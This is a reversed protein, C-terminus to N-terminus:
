EAERWYVAGVIERLIDQVEVTAASTGFYLRDRDTGPMRLVIPQHLMGTFSLASPPTPVGSVSVQIPENNVRNFFTTDASRQGTCANFIYVFSNGGGSCPSTNPSFSIAIVRGDRIMLNKILREGEYGTSNPFDFYWGANSGSAPNPRGGSDSDTTTTWNAPNASLVRAQQGSVTSYVEVSQRVLSVGSFATNSFAGTAKNYSGLYESPDTPDSFDWIGYISQVSTTDLRDPDGLFKGTGFVVIYGEKTCHRMVSPKTTISQGGPAQFLPKPTSGSRFASKWNAPNDSSLDIKWLNGTLDGAYVYDVKFDNNADILTPTSMGGGAGTDIKRILTGTSPDVVYLVSHGSSSEYGNGFVVVWPYSASNSAVIYAQSFSYGMDSDTEGLEDTITDGDNDIGDSGARPFEWLVMDAVTDETTSTSVNDANTIDLAYYGKGGKGLGGVLLTKKAGGVRISQAVVTLDVYFSHTYNTNTLNTLHDFVLNPIYAFREVGTSSSFAHLMGDNAGAFVTDGVLVPASHVIDGLKKTRSRLGDVELGRIFEIRDQALSDNASSSILDSGLQQKQTNTLSGYRFPKGDNTGNYTVIRRGTDWDRMQLQDSARWRIDNEERLVEGTVSDIPYAVLDGVWKGAEYQAQFLVSGQSLEEGNVSVSAGSAKRSDINQFVKELSSVLEEPNSASFFLGRGNVASHWLDDINERKDAGPQPWTPRPTSTSLFCPDDEEGDGNADLPTLTGTVGFSVSYTVMHQHRATDCSNPPVFNDLSTSLDTKYYKMAVDALTDSYTDAYPSGEASDQNGVSPTNGNWFGDTMVISFAQQCAGGDQESAWPASGLGGTESDDASFYQGVHKLGLRLPTGGSSNIAYLSNLFTTTQDVSVSGSTAEFKVADANTSSGTSGSHRDVRVSGATGANFTFTGLLKWEGCGLSGGSSQDKYVVTTGGNHTITFKANTDRTDSCNWWAYVDFQKTESFTPTWKAYDGSNSTYFSSDNYENPSGSESWSGSKSFGADKNDIVIADSDVHIPLVTQELSGNISNLGVYIRSLSNVTTSVAAKATLERRRYFSYWNAFNQLDETDTKEGVVSGDESYNKPIIQTPVSTAPIPTLEGGEVINDSDADDFRYYSRVGSSFTTLYVEGSDIAGNGDADYWQYYHANYITITPVVKVFRIADACVRDYDSNRHFALSVSGTSGESFTYQGLLNWTGSWSTDRQNMTTTNSTGDHTITYVVATSRNGNGYWRAFVQYTGTSPITTSWRATYNDDSPTWYYSSNYADSSSDSSWPGTKTFGSDLQDITIQAGTQGLGSMYTGNLNFTKTSNMPNQRPTSTNAPDQGPWPRYTTNPNYYLRNYGSWQSKWKGRDSGTLITGNGDSTSYANDSGPDDFIYEYIGFKGQDETTMVEWDMSGSDDYVFMLNPPAAIVRSEMPLDSIEAHAATTWISTEILQVLMGIIAIALANRCRISLPM